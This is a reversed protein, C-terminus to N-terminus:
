HGAASASLDHMPGNATGADTAGAWQVLAADLVASEGEALHGDAAIVELALGIIRRQLALDDVEGLLDALLRSDSGIGLAGTADGALLLDECLDQVIRAMAGAPLGLQREVALRSLAEFETRCAHGDAILTLAILRAAAEPSNRPYNRM